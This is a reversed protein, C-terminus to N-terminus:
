ELVFKAAGAGGVASIAMGAKTGVSRRSKDFGDQPPAPADQEESIMPPNAPKSSGIKSTGIMRTSQINMTNTKRFLIQSAFADRESCEDDGQSYESTTLYVDSRLDFPSLNEPRYDDHDRGCQETGVTLLLGFGATGRASGSETSSM